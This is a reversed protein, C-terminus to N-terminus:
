PSPSVPTSSPAPRVRFETSAAEKGDVDVSWTYRAGPQLLLPGVNVSFVADLDASDEWTEPEGMEIQGFVELRQVGAAGPVKVIRGAEDLLRLTIPIPTRARDAPVKVFIIVAQSTPEPGTVTWGAGLIHVKGSATDREAFDGLVIVTQM